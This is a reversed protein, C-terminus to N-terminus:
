RRRFRSRGGGDREAREPAISPVLRAIAEVVDSRRRNTALPSGQNISLPVERSSPLQVDISTGLSKEVEPVRLGVNSDARNLVTLIRDRPHGLQHLTTLATRLNKVSPVDLSGVLVVQDSQDIAVLVQDTFFAPGDVVVFDFTSKLLTMMTAVSNASVAESLSPELPAALLSIGSAHRTLYGELADADMREVSQAADYISLSPMLQLMIALDGSQLDLDVLAVRAGTQALLVALNSAVLSKGCGGKTSFVTVVRGEDGEREVSGPPAHDSADALARDIAARFEEPDLEDAGLVDSVGSRLARRVTGTDLVERILVVAAPRTGADLSSAIGLAADLDLHTGLVLVTPQSVQDIAARLSATDALETPASDAALQSVLQKRVGPDPDCVIIM